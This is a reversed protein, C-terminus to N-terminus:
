PKLKWPDSSHKSHLYGFAIEKFKDEICKKCNQLELTENM